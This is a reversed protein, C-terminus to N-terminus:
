DSDAQSPGVIAPLGRTAGLQGAPPVSGSDIANGAKSDIGGPSLVAVEFFDFSVDIEVPQEPTPAMATLGVFRPDGGYWKQFGHNVFHEGDESSAFAYTSGCKILRLWIRQPATRLSLVSKTSRFGGSEPILILQQHNPVASEYALKIYNDADNWCLLVAQQYPVTPTFGIICTTLQFDRGQAPNRILYVNRYGAAGSAFDGDGARINLIGATKNFSTHIPDHKLIEWKLASGDTFDDFAVIERHVAQKAAPSQMQELASIAKLRIQDSPAALLQALAQAAEPTDQMRLLHIGRLASAEDIMTEGIAATSAPSPSRSWSLLEEFWRRTADVAAAPVPPASLLQAMLGATKSRQIEWQHVSLFEVADGGASTVGSLVEMCAQATEADYTGPIPMRWIRATHDDSATAALHGIPSCKVTNIVGDHKLVPGVPLGTPVHWVRATGDLSSTLLLHRDPAFAVATISGTHEMAAGVPRWNPWDMLRARHDVGGVALTDGDPGVALATVECSYTRPQGIPKGTSLDWRQVHGNANGTFLSVGDPSFAFCATHHKRLHHSFEASAGDLGHMLPEGIQELTAASWVRIGVDHLGASALYDGAPSIGLRDFMGSQSSQRTRMGTVMDYCDIAGAYVAQGMGDFVAGNCWANMEFRPGFREGTLVDWVQVNGGPANGGAQSTVVLDTNPGFDIDRVWYSHRLTSIPGSPPIRWIRVVGDYCATAVINATPSWTACSVTAPHRLISGIPVGTRADWIRATHDGSATVIRSGDPSYEAWSVADHHKMPVGTKEANSSDFQQGLHGQMQGVVFRPKTPHFDFHWALGSMHLQRHVTDQRWDWREIDWGFGTAAVTDEDHPDFAAWTIFRSLDRSRIPQAPDQTNWVRIWGDYGGTAMRAGDRSISISSVGRRGWADYIADPPIHVFEAPANAKERAPLGWRRVVGDACGTYLFAGQPDFALVNVPGPQAPLAGASQGTELSWLRVVGDDCASAALKGDPSVAVGNVRTPHPFMHVLTHAELLWAGVNYSCAEVLPQAEAQKATALAKSFLLLGRDVEGNKCLQQAQRLEMTAVAEQQKRLRQSAHQEASNARVAFVTSSVSGLLILLIIAAAVTAAKWYKRMLKGTQYAFSPPAASVPEGARYRALDSALGNATEYRRTRNRELAKLLIWDLEGRVLHKLKEPSQGRQQAITHLERPPLSTLRTSAKPPDEERITRLIAEYGKARLAQHDFPTHGTLLEYLIAGLSYIDSRTDIDMSGLGAQEPSMYAPTGLWQNFATFLTRETLRTQLAKAVGFDIVKPVPADEQETVLINAPKLDRHIIGKQHAHQVAQCVKRFLDLREGPSLRAADCYATIPMGRILEMVFYPRGTETAGADLVRAINPHDM